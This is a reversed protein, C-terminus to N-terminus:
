RGVKDIMGRVEYPAEEENECKAQCYEDHLPPVITSTLCVCLERVGVGLNGTINIDHKVAAEGATSM